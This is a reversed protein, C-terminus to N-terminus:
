GNYEGGLSYSRGTSRIMGNGVPRTAKKFANWAIFQRAVKM